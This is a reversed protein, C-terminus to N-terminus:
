CGKVDIVLNGWADTTARDGPFVLVTTDMQEVIAPGEIVQGNVLESRNYIPTEVREAGEFLTTRTGFPQAENATPAMPLEPKELNGIAKVAVNVIQIAESESSFGYAFAHEAHFARSLTAILTDDDMSLDIDLTLEYNQGYYRAGVTWFRRQQEDPVEESNFWSTSRDKLEEAAARLTTVGTHSLPSLTTVVFDTSLSANLAGEACLIGPDPPVIIKAM